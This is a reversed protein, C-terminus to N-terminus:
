FFAPSFPTVMLERGGERAGAERWVGDRLQFLRGVERSCKQETRRHVRRVEGEQRPDLGMQEPHRCLSPKKCVPSDSAVGTGVAFLDAPSHSM